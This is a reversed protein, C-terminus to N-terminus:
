SDTFFSDSIEKLESYYNIAASTSIKERDSLELEDSQISGAKDDLLNADYKRVKVARVIKDINEKKLLRTQEIFFCNTKGKGFKMYMEALTTYHGLFKEVSSSYKWWNSKKVSPWQLMPDRFCFLFSADPYIKELYELTLPSFLKVDKFGGRQIQNIPSLHRKLANTISTELEELYGIANPYYNSHSDQDFSEHFRAMQTQYNEAKSLTEIRELLSTIDDVIHHQEGWICVEGSSNLIRQLATTGTRGCVGFVFVYDSSISSTKNRTRIEFFSDRTRISFNKIFNSIKNVPM